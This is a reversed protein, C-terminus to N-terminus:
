LAKIKAKRLEERKLRNEIMRKEIEVNKPDQPEWGEPDNLAKSLKDIYEKM